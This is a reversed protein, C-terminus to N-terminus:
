PSPIFRGTATEVYGGAVRQYFAGTRPDVFGGASNDMRQGSRTDIIIDESKNLGSVSPASSRVQGQNPAARAQQDQKEILEALRERERELQETRIKNEMAEYRPGVQQVAHALADAAPVGARIERDRLELVENIAASNSGPSESNLFPYNQYAWASVANLRDQETVYAPSKAASYDQYEKWPEGASALLPICIICGAILRFM